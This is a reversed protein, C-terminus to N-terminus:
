KQEAQQLLNNVGIAKGNRLIIRCLLRLNGGFCYFRSIKRSFSKRAVDSVEAERVNEENMM